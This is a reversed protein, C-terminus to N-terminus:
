DKFLHQAVVLRQVQNPGELTQTGKADRMMRAVPYDKM